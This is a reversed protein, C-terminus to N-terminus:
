HFFKSMNFQAIPVTEPPPKKPPSPPAPEAKKGKKGKKKKADSEKVPEPKLAELEGNIIVQHAIDVNFGVYFGRFHSAIRLFELMHEVNAQVLEQVDADEKLMDKVKWYDSHQTLPVIFEELYKGFQSPWYNHQHQQRCLWMLAKLLAARDITDFQQIDNDSPPPGKAAPIWSSKGLANANQQEPTTKSKPLLKARKVFELLGKASVRPFEEPSESLLDNYLALITDYHSRISDLASRLDGENQFYDSIRLNSPSIDNLFAQQLQLARTDAPVKRQLHKGM